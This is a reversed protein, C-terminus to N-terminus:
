PAALTVAVDRLLANVPAPVYLGLLVLGGLFMLKPVAVTLREKQLEGVGTAEGWIMPFLTRGTAVFSVVLVVCFPFLLELRKSEVVASLVLLEGLFSGFPPLGLLAFTGVMLMLGNYPLLKVLSRVKRSDTTGFAQHVRGAALFLIAKVFANSVVYVLVGYTAPAGLGLGVAIVGAHNIAAYGLLRLYDRTTVIGLTSVAMSAVGVWLLFTTLLGAEAAHFVEVTRILGVLAANFQVAGLLAAVPAPATSYVLPLWTNLPFLGLKAGFGALVLFLGVQVWLGHPPAAMLAPWTFRVEPAGRELCAFGLLVLALGVSSFLFYQFSGWMRRRQGSAVLPAALLTSLELGAWSGVPSSALIAADCALLFPLGLAALRESLHDPDHDFAAANVVHAAVGLFLVNVLAVFLRSTADTTVYGGLWEGSPEVIAAVVAGVAAAAAGILLAISTARRV